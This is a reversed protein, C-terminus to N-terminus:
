KSDAHATPRHSTFASAWLRPHPASDLMVGVGAGARRGAARRPRRLAPVGPGDHRAALRPGARGRAGAPVQPHAAAGDRPPAAPRDPSGTDPLVDVRT